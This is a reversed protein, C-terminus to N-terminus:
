QVNLFFFDLFSSSGGLQSNNEVYTINDIVNSTKLQVNLLAHSQKTNPFYAM